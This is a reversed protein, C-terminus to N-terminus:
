RTSTSATAPSPPTASRSATSRRTSRSREGEAGARPAGERSRGADRRHRPVRRARAGGQRRHRRRHAAKEMFRDAIEDATRGAVTGLGTAALSAEVARRVDARDKGALPSPAEGRKAGGGNARALMAKLRAPDGFARALRKRWPASLDLADLLAAFLASTASACRAAAEAQVPRRGRVGAEPHRRRGGRPRDARAVEVGAQLFEGPEGQRSHPVGPRPLRLEGQAEGRRDRPPAPLRSDHLRPPAGARAGDAGSTLYLRRRLDEGATEVFVEAPFVVPPAVFACGFDSFLDRLAAFPESMALPTRVPAATREGRGLLRNVAEVLDAEAVEEQGPRADRYESHDSMAPPSSRAPALDKIQVIGRAKEDGGQIIALPADRRDAYKMQAKMGAAGLYLEAPIDARRLDAVMKQYDAVRDKDMVLVVVPGTAESTELQGLAALAAQLRSVGISFGTAPVDDKMFRGVLGDYRGGGGVSGFVM